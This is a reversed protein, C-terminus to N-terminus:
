SHRQLIVEAVSKWLDKLDVDSQLGAEPRRLTMEETGEAIKRVQEINKMIVAAQVDYVTPMTREFLKSILQTMEFIFPVESDIIAGTKLKDRILSNSARSVYWGPTYIPKTATSPAPDIPAQKMTLKALKGQKM